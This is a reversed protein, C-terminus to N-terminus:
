NNRLNVGTQFQRLLTTQDNSNSTGKHLGFSIEVYVQDNNTYCNFTVTNTPSLQSFDSTLYITAPPTTDATSTIRNNQATLTTPINDSDLFSLSTLNTGCTSILGHSARLMQSMTGLAQEGDRKIKQEFVAKTNSVVFTLFFTSVTMLLVVTISLVVLLEILTFGAESRAFPSHLQPRM